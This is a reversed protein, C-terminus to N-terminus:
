VDLWLGLSISRETYQFFEGIPPRGDYWEIGIRWNRDGSRAALGIQAAMDLRWDREETASVDVAGYWGTCRERHDRCSDHELGAQGRGPKMLEDNALEYGWGGEAYTRWHEDVPFSVGAALEHRTYGIRQRRTRAMYEDGVHSSDHLVGFKFAAGHLKGTTVLLGYRGDWGINDLSHDADFQFNFGGLVDVQWARGGAGSLGARVVGFQGGAELAVRHIGSDPIATDAYNLWQVGFGVSQPDALYPPYLTGPPLFMAAGPRATGEAPYVLAPFLLLVGIFSFFRLRRRISGTRFVRIRLM